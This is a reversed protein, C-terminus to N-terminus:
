LKKCNRSLDVKLSLLCGKSFVAERLQGVPGVWPLTSHFDVLQDDLQVLKRGLGFYVNVHAFATVNLRNVTDVKLWAIAVTWRHDHQDVFCLLEANGASAIAM